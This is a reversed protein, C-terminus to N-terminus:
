RNTHFDLLLNSHKGIIMSRQSALVINLKYTEYPNRYLNRAQVANENM